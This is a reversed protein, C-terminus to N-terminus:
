PLLKFAEVGIPLFNATVSIIHPAFILILSLFALGKFIEYCDAEKKTLGEVKQYRKYDGSLFDNFKIIEM